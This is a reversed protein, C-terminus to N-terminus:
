FKLTEHVDICDNGDSDIEKFIETTLKKLEPSLGPKPLCTGM